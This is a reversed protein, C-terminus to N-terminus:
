TGAAAHGTGKGLYAAVVQEDRAIEDPTGSAILRGTNMVHVTDVARLLFRLNHEVLVITTGHGRLTGLLSHLIEQHDVDLGATPEDLLLLKPERGVQRAIEVMRRQGGSLAPYPVDCLEALGVQDLAAEAQKRTENGRRLLLAGLLSERRDRYAVEVNEAVSLSPFGRPTQFTRAVGMAACALMSKGRVDTGDILVRGATPELVRSILNFVTTKGAGNPGILGTISGPEVEFSVEDVAKVGGFYRSVADLTVSFSM